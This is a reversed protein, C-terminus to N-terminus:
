YQDRAVTAITSGPCTSRELAKPGLDTAVAAKNLRERDRVPRVAPVHVPAGTPEPEVQERAPERWVLEVRHVPMRKAGNEFPLDVELREPFTRRDPQEHNGSM